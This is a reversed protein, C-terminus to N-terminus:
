YRFRITEIAKPHLWSKFYPSNLLRSYYTPVGMMVTADRVWELTDEVTFRDRWLVTSHSFLACNLSIFMGHVHYFPLSHLLRDTQKFKWANVLENANSVLGGHTLIAGKPLGTTGSTYCICAPDGPTVHEIETMGNEMQDGDRGMVKEDVISPIRDRFSM